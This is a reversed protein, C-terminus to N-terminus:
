RGFGGGSSEHSAVHMGGQFCYKKVLIAVFVVVDEFLSTTETRRELLHRSAPLATPRVLAPPHNTRGCPLSSEFTAQLPTTGACTPGHQRTARLTASLNGRLCVRARVAPIKQASPLMKDDALMTAILHQRHHMRVIRDAPIARDTRLRNRVEPASFTEEDQESEHSQSDGRRNEKNEAPDDPEQNRRCPSIPQREHSRQQAQLREAPLSSKNRGFLSYARRPRWGLAPNLRAVGM